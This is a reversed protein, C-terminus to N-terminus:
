ESYILLQVGILLILGAWALEWGSRVGEQFRRGNVLKCSGAAIAMTGMVAHHMAIKHASPHAGHSHLFLMVGGLVAFAPLPMGWVSQAVRGTRRMMEVTGVGFLLLAYLKHQVTEFDGTVFSQIFTQSGIPWADHDSWILLFGGAGLMAVPLLFRTWALLSVRLATRLESLGILLVFVGAMHHNFESYAKGEASGEWQNGPGVATDHQHPTAQPADHHQAPVPIVLFLLVLTALLLQIGANRHSSNSSM